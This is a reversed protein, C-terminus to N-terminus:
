NKKLRAVIVSMDDLRRGEGAKVARDIIMEASKQPSDDGLSTLTDKIFAEGLETVGDSMMVIRDGVSLVATRRAFDIGRLIGAPMSSLECKNLRGEKIFYTAPAGAKMIECKGTYTDINAIDLTALSEDGSKVLLAGNIIKLASDFGFGAGVLRSLLGAGMAGDLAARSGTGMGDSIILVTHGRGDDATKVTDGCIKGEASYQASGAEVCYGPKEYFSLLTDEKLYTTKGQNFYRGCLRGVERGLSPTKLKANNGSCLIEVRMRGHADEVASVCKPYIEREKLRRRIRAAAAANFVEEGDFEEALSKLMDSITFFQDSAVGRILNTKELILERSAYEEETCGARNRANEKRGIETIKERVQTVSESIATMAAGAYKLRIVLSQRASLASTPEDPIDAAEELRRYVGKPILIFSLAGIATELFFGLANEASSAICFFGATCLFALSLVTDPMSSLLSCVMASFALAGIKYLEGEGKLSMAFGFSLSIIFAYREGTFRVALLIILAAAACAPAIIGIKLSATNMLLLTLSIIICGAESLPMARLRLRKYDASLATFLFYAGGASLVAEALTLAYEALVADTGADLALGTILNSLFAAAVPAGANGRAKLLDIILAAAAALVASAVYRLANLNVGATLAGLVAGLTSFPLRRKESVAIISCGFPRLGSLASGTGFLFGLAFFLAAGYYKKLPSSKILKKASQIKESIIM